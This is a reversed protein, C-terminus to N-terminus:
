LFRITRFQEPDIGIVRLAADSPPRQSEVAAAVAQAAGLAEIFSWLNRGILVFRSM